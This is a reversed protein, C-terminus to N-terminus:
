KNTHNLSAPIRLIWHSEAEVAVHVREENLVPMSHRKLVRCSELTTWQPTKNQLAGQVECHTSPGERVASSGRRAVHWSRRGSNCTTCLQSESSSLEPGLHGLVEQRGRLSLLEKTSFCTFGVEKLTRIPRQRRQVQM